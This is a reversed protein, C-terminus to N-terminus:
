RILTINGKKEFYKQNQCKGKFYYVFVGPQCYTGKYKGDWGTQTSNSEFVKEGWRDFLQINMEELIESRVFFMDNQLDNNPTFGNPIFIYPERCLQDIVIITISDSHTCGYQDTMTLYYITTVLPTAIPDSINANNLSYSPTWNYNVGNLHTAHLRTNLDKYITDKDAWVAANSFINNIQISVTDEAKCNKSDTVIVSYLGSCLSSIIATNQTTNWSYSYPPNSGSANTNISGICVGTCPVHTVVPNIILPTPNNLTITAFSKCNLSDTIIVSYTGACLMFITDNSSSTNWFYTYPPTGGSPLIAATGNCSDHCSPNLIISPNSPFLSSVYISDIGECWQNKIKVWFFSSSTSLHIMASSDSLSYNLTDTFNINSSWIYQVPNELTHATLKASDSCVLTDNGADVLMKHVIVTQKITDTCIGNSLLLHYTTNIPPSAFPNSITSDTLYNGPIWKYTNLPNGSPPIGIQNNDGVCNHVSPITYSTDDLVVIQKIITDTLSCGNLLYSILKVNYIGSHTYIHTPNVQTNILTGDGFDWSYTSGISTNQFIVTDPACGIPTDVFDALAFDYHINFKFVANNCNLSCNTDSWVNSPFTPFNSYGGCSACVSQYVTGRKDFRSTGGDVHDRGSFPNAASYLEGFYTAYDLSSANDSMVMIYFDQGDTTTQFANPTIQMNVTGFVSGWSYPSNGGWYRGWGSLYVRNCIDVSFATLSINPKGSGTGFVTSWIINNLNRPFKAIFQGSNPVNYLANYILVNSDAETQGTIYVKDDRGCRVFYGQDYKNSGYYTSAVLTSGNQSIRSLFADTNGGQYTTKYAGATTPFNTSSTGGTVYVNYQSDNDISYIADDETGGIYTSWILNSLNYDLKFVIGEQKGHNTPQFGISTGPFDTSFTCSGVYVNSLNDTIMEGRAGDGYNYYLSDNGFMLNVDYYQRYNLGDNGSGGVFTSALLQTGDPSLKSVFIDVGNPYNIVADYTIPQGGNFSTDYANPTVPFNSSGTTGYILLQNSTNVILSQPMEGNSGGLYTAYLRNIGLSDYKIIGIDWNGGSNQQYAGVTVPYGIGSVIGGSFVNGYLDYTATFGWNDATSGTYTSFILSPDIILNYNRNYAGVKFSLVNKKLVYNCEVEKEKGDIIQYCYPRLELIQNVSTEILLHGKSLKINDVYKYKLQINDPNAAPKIIFDYKLFKNKSYLKFDINKYINKYNVVNFKHAEKAWKKADNGIFYNCYDYAKESPIIEADNCNLFEVQYAHYHVINDSKRHSKVYGNHAHSHKIDSSKVLNYTLCNKELFLMGSEVDTAFVVKSDWQNKNEIFKLMPMQLSDRVAFSVENCIILFIFVFFFVRKM